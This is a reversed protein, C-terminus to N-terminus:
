EVKLQDYRNKSALICLYFWIVSSFGIENIMHSGGLLAIALGGFLALSNIRIEKSSKRIVMTIVSTVVAMFLAFGVVGMEVLIMVYMNHPDVLSTKGYISVYRSDATWIRKYFTAIGSGFIPKEQFASLGVTLSNMRSETSVGMSYDSFLRSLSENNYAWFLLVIVGIVVLLKYRLKVHGKYKLFYFVFFFGLILFGIRSQLLLVSFISTILSIIYFLRTTHAAKNIGIMIMPITAIFYYTTTISTGLMTSHRTKYDAAIEGFGTLVVLFNQAFFQIIVYISYVFAIVIIAHVMAEFKSGLSKNVCMMYLMPIVMCFASYCSQSNAFFVTNAFTYISFAGLLAFHVRDVYRIGTLIGYIILIAPLVFVMNSGYQGDIFPGYVIKISNPTFM